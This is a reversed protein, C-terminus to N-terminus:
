LEFPEIMDAVPYGTCLDGLPTIGGRLSRSCLLDIAATRGPVMLRRFASSSRLETTM